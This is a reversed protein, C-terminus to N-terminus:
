SLLNEHFLNHVHQLLTVNDYGKDNQEACRRVHWRIQLVGILPWNCFHIRPSKEEDTNHQHPETEVVQCGFHDDAPRPVHEGQGEGCCLTEGHAKGGKQPHVAEAGAQVEVPLSTTGGHHRARISTPSVM